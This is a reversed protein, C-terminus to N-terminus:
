SNSDNALKKRLGKYPVWCHPVGLLHEGQVYLEEARFQIFKDYFRVPSRLNEFDASFNWDSSGVIFDFHCQFHSTLTCTYNRQESYAGLSM